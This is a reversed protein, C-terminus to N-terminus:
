QPQEFNTPFPLFRTPRNGDSPQLVPQYDDFASEEEIMTKIGFEYQQKLEPTNPNNMQKAIMLEAGDIIVSHFQVPIDSIDTDASLDPLLKIYRVEHNYISDPTPFFQLQRKKAATAAVSPDNRFLAYAVPPGTTEINPQYLDLNRYGVNTLKAPSAPQRISIVRSAATSLSYFVQRLTYTQATATTGEYAPSITISTNSARATVEYWNTEGQFQIYWRVHTSTWVTSTGTVTASGDTIDCTGTTYDTVTQIIEREQLFKWDRRSCIDQITLNLARKLRTAYAAVTQDLNARDGLEQQLILFTAL